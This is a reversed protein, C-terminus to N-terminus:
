YALDYKVLNLTPPEGRSYSDFNRLFIDMVREYYRETSGATHPTVIVEEM